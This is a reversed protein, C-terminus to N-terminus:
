HQMLAQVPNLRAARRAPMVGFVLGTALSVCVAAAVAWAPAALPFDPFFRGILYVGVLGILVGFVAGLLSLLAAETLFLRLIQGSAAGLAKLLGVEARRQTISILMINMILIGAVALSIAAIGALTLTLAELISDFTKLVADQSVVTVDEVGQHRERLTQLVLKRAPELADRDKAEVLIRFLSATNFLSQASAVPIIVSDEPDMGLSRGSSALVGIVRFRSEGVRLWQGLAKASGFLEERIKSGIVCVSRGRDLEGDPLFRGQALKLHRIDLMAASTGLITVERERQRWSVAATGVAVPAVHRIRSHHQLAQADDLTLDRPTESVMLSTGMGATETRGPLVILLHSGLSAFENVVYRRAGDGLATLVVVAAVGIAMALLVLVTRLRQGYLARLAFGVADGGRV